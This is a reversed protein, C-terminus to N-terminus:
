PNNTPLKALTDLLAKENGAYIADVIKMWNDVEDTLKRIAVASQRIDNSSLGALNGRSLPGGIRGFDFLPSTLRAHNKGKVGMTTIQGHAVQNRVSKRGGFSNTFRKWAPAIKTEYHPSGGIAMKLVSGIINLRTETNSPAFYIASALNNSPDRIIKGLLISLTNELGAWSFMLDLMAERIAQYEAAIKKREQDHEDKIEEFDDDM